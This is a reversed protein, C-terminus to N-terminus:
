GGVRALEDFRVCAGDWHLPVMGLEGDRNKAIILEANDDRASDDYVSERYLMLAVDADQELTGSDRLDALTPRKNGRQEVARSLQSLALVPVGTSRAIHQLGTSINGVMVNRSEGEGDMLQLYDVIILGIKGRKRRAVQSVYSVSPGATDDIWLPMEHLRAWEDTVSKWEDGLHLKGTQLQKLPIKTEMSVLRMWVREAAVELSFVLVGVQKKIVELAIRLALASKGMSPRGALYILQGDQLGLLKTDLLPLGTHLGIVDGGASYMEELRSFAADGIEDIGRAGDPRTGELEMVKAQLHEVMKDVDDTSQAAQAAEQSYAMVSRRIHKDKLITVYHDYHASTPVASQLESLYVSGGIAELQNRDRLLDSISVLDPMVGRRHLECIAQYVCQTRAGYFKDVGLEVLEELLGEPDMLASGLVAAEADTAKPLAIQKSM